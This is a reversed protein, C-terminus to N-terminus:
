RMQLVIVEDSTPDTRDRLTRVEAATVASGTNGWAQRIFTVVEAVEADTLPVRFPPMRYSDPVGNSVV